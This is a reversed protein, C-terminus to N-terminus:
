VTHVAVTVSVSTPVGTFRKPPTVKVLLPAPKKLKELSQM